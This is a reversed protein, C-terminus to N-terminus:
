FAPQLISIEGGVVLQSSTTEDSGWIKQVAVTMVDAKLEFGNLIWILELGTTWHAFLSILTIRGSGIIWFLIKQVLKKGLCHHLDFFLGWFEELQNAMAVNFGKSPSFKLRIM